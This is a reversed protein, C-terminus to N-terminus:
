NEIFEKLFYGVQTPQRYTIDHTGEKIEKFSIYSIDKQLEDFGSIPVVKDETGWIVLSKIKFNDIKKYINSANAMETNRITSLLADTFGKFKTQYIFLENFEDEDISKPDNSSRTESASIAKFVSPFSRFIYDGLVPLTFAKFYWPPKPMYGAPAILSLSSIKKNNRSSFDAAIPGGM